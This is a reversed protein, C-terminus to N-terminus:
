RTRGTPLGHGLTPTPAVLSPRGPDPLSTVSVVPNSCSGGGGRSPSMHPSKVAYRGCIWPFVVGAPAL